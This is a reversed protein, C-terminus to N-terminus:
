TCDLRRRQCSNLQSPLVWLWSMQWLTESFDSAWPCGWASGMWHPKRDTDRKGNCWSLLLNCVPGWCNWTEDGQRTQLALRDRAWIALHGVAKHLGGLHQHSASHANAEGECSCGLQLIMGETKSGYSQIGSIKWKLNPGLLMDLLTAWARRPWDAVLTPWLPWGSYVSLLLASELRQLVRWKKGTFIDAIKEESVTECYNIAVAIPISCSCSAPVSEVGRHHQHQQYTSGAWRWTTKIQSSTALSWFVGLICLCLVVFLFVLGNLIVNEEGAQRSRLCSGLFWLVLGIALLSSSSSPLSSLCGRGTMAMVRTSIRCQVCACTNPRKLPHFTPFIGFSM